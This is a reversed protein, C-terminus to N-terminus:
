PTRHQQIATYLKVSDSADRVDHVRLISAGQMLCDYHLCVTGTLRDDKPRGELIDGISSKRSAGMLIPLELSTLRHLNATLKLNHELTKGFGFGPDIVLQEAAVGETIAFNAQRKLFSRVDAVVDEYTPNQQMTKPSGQSHMIVLGAKHEAALRAFRPEKQLGSVDNIIAAGAELASKAVDYKTTDISIILDPYLDLAARIVPTTRELEEVVTVPESGPRTSEGGIDIIDSGEEIMEAIRKLAADLTTFEGGDSFSDPTVNLIGMVCPLTLDLSSGAVQWIRPSSVSVPVVKNM